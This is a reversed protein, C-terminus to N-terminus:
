LRQVLLEWVSVRMFEKFSEFGVKEINKIRTYQFLVLLDKPIKPFIQVEMDARSSQHLIRLDKSVRSNYESNKYNM